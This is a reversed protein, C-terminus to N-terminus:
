CPAADGAGVLWCARADPRGVEVRWLSPAIREVGHLDECGDSTDDLCNLYVAATIADDRAPDSTPWLLFAATTVAAGLCVGAALTRM